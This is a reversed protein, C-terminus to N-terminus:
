ISHTSTSINAITSSITCLNVLKVVSKRNGDKYNVQISLKGVM